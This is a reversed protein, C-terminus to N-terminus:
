PNVEAERRKRLLTWLGYVGLATGLPFSLLAFVSLIIALVKARPDHLRLRWGTCVYALVVLATSIWYLTPYPLQQSRGSGALYASFIVQLGAWVWFLLGLLRRHDRRPREARPQFEM